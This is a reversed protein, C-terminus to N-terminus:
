DVITSFGGVKEFRITSRFKDVLEQSKHTIVFTNTDDTFNNLIRLFDESGEDDLSSDFTEDLFLLNTSTSNRMKAIDRWAFLMALDLRMKEGESFSSYTFDDRHRSKITENFNEDLEFSVSFGMDALYKNIKKNIEPIYTKLIEAKVGEDKLITSGIQYTDSLDVLEIKKSELVTLEDTLEKLNVDNTTEVTQVKLREIDRKLENNLKDCLEVKSNLNWIDTKVTDIKKETEEFSKLKKEAEKIQKNLEKFAETLEDLKATKAAVTEDRFLSDILQKCTPCNDNDQFFKVENTLRTFKNTLTTEIGRLENIKKIVKSKPALKEQLTELVMNEQQVALIHVEKLGINENIKEQKQEILDDNNQKLQAIHRRSIDIKGQIANMKADIEAIAPKLDRIENKLLTNMVSYIQTDLIDEIVVRRDKPELKMFPIFDSSGIIAIQTFTKYDFHLIQKELYSQYQRVDTQPILEGNCHIEFLNKKMGRRVLYDKGGISFEVEVMMEKKNISNLLKDKNIDRYPCGFLGFILAEIITSKGSGNKGLILTSKSRDLSIETFVNGTSLLNKYRVVKFNIKM